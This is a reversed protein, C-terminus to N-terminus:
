ALYMQCPSVDLIDACTVLVATDASRSWGYIPGQPLVGNAMLPALVVILLGLITSSYVVELPIPSAPQSGVSVALVM